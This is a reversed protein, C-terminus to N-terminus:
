ILLTGVKARSWMDDLLVKRSIISHEYSQIQKGHCLTIQESKSLELQIDYHLLNHIIIYVTSRTIMYINIKNQINTSIDRVANRKAQPLSNAM